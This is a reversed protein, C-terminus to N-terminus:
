TKQTGAEPVEPDAHGTEGPSACNWQISRTAGPAALTRRM